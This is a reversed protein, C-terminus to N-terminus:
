KKNAYARHVIFGAGCRVLIKMIVPKRVGNRIQRILTNDKAKHAEDVASAGFLLNAVTRIAIPGKANEIISIIKEEVPRLGTKKNRDLVRDSKRFNSKSKKNLKQREKKEVVPAPINKEFKPVNVTPLKEAKDIKKKLGDVLPKNNYKVAISKDLKDCKVRQEIDFPLVIPLSERASVDSTSCINNLRKEIRKKNRKNIRERLEQAKLAMQERHKREM